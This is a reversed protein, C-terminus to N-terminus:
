LLQVDLCGWACLQVVPTRKRWCSYQDTEPEYEAIPSRVQPHRESRQTIPEGRLRRACDRMDSLAAAYPLKRKTLASLRNATPETRTM